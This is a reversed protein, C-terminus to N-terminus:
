RARWIKISFSFLLIVGMLTKAMMSNGCLGEICNESLSFTWFTFCKLNLVLKLYWYQSTMYIITYTKICPIAVLDDYWWLLIIEILMKISAYFITPNNPIVHHYILCAANHHATYQCIYQILHHSRSRKQQKWKKTVAFCVM